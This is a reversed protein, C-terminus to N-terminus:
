DAASAFNTDSARVQNMWTAAERREDVVPPDILVLGNRGADAPRTFQDQNRMIFGLSDALKDSGHGNKFCVGSSHGPSSSTWYDCLLDHYGWAKASWVSVNDLSTGPKGQYEVRVSRSQEAKTLDEWAEIVAFQLAKDLEM